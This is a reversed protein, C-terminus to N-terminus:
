QASGLSRLEPYDQLRRQIPQNQVLESIFGYDKGQKHLASVGSRLFDIGDQSELLSELILKSFPKLDPYDKFLFELALGPTAFGLTVRACFASYYAFAKAWTAKYRRDGFLRIDRPFNEWQVLVDDVICSMEWQERTMEKLQPLKIM